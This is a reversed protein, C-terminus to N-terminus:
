VKIKGIIAACVILVGTLNNLYFANRCSLTSKLDVQSVTQWSMVFTIILTFYYYINMAPVEYFGALSLCIFMIIVFSKMRVKGRDGFAVAMSNLSLKRDDEVDQYAYITDYIMTWYIGACYLFSAATTIFKGVSTYAALIGINLAIGLLIQPYTIFRKSFPYIFMFVAGILCIVISLPPLQTLVAIGGLSMLAFIGFAEGLTIEKSALPRWKTRKVFRDIDRDVIDNIACGASRSFFSGLAFLCILKIFRVPDFSDYYAFILGWLCPM